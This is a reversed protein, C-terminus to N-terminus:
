NQQTYQWYQGGGAQVGSKVVLQKLVTKKVELKKSKENTNKM